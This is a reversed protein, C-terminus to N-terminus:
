PLPGKLSPSPNRAAVGVRSAEFTNPLHCAAGGADSGAHPGRFYKWRATLGAAAPASEKLCASQPAQVEHGTGCGWCDGTELQQFLVFFVELAECLAAVVDVPEGIQRAR